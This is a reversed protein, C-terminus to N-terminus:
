AEAILGFSAIMLLILFFLLFFWISRLLYSLEAGKDQKQTAPKAMAVIVM